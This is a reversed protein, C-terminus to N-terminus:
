LIPFPTLPLHSAASSPSVVRGWSGAGHVTRGTAEKLSMGWLEWPAEMFAPTRLSSLVSFPQSESAKITCSLLTPKEGVVWEVRAVGSKRLSHTLMFGFEFLKGVAEPLRGAILALPPPTQRLAMLGQAQPNPGKGSSFSMPCESVPLVSAQTYSPFAPTEATPSQERGEQARKGRTGPCRVCGKVGWPVKGM